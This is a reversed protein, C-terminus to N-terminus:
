FNMKLSQSTEAYSNTKFLQSISADYYNMVIKVIIFSNSVGIFRSANDLLESVNPVKQFEVYQTENM